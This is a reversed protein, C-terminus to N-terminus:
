ATVMAPLHTPAAGSTAREWMRLYLRELDRAFHAGDFLVSQGRQSHLHQRISARRDPDAALELVRQRYSDRDSCVWEDQDVNHLLSAAVRQAFTEGKLTVVPVGAWLAEGATTHANCPWADLYLDACALRSLHDALPAIPAFLLRQPAIGRALAAATLTSQVNVNWRLLWLVADSRERLLECWLDFVEESIKYSQHFACLLLAGQPAGWEARTSARPLARAADNPQYCHPLQAIKESFHDAAALPTVIRDGVIYDIFPAGTSGPFGLWTVQLPAPRHALVPLLTDHTAGKLDVLIDIDLARARRAIAEFSQGRLNEFHECAGAIRRRMESGDDPGTSLLTVEFAQRDHCELMQAMLQSTAHQHFDASLYALRLRGDHAHAERRPLARVNRLVHMAYHRAVKLQELPDDVLVAHTFPSTEVPKADPTAQLTQRLSALTAAAARWDGAEREMFALQGRAACDSAGLGLLVATRLCEAAQSKLGLDKFSQGLHFHLVANDLAGALANMFAPIADGHRQCRQLAMALSVWYAHDRALDAPLEDLCRVAEEARGLALLAQAELTYALRERPHRLRLQGARRQADTARGAKILAHAATLAYSTDADLSSAQEFASAAHQWQERRAHDQGKQWQRYARGRPSSPPVSRPIVPQPLVFAM